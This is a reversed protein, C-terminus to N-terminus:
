ALARRVRALLTPATVPKEILDIDDLDMSEELFPEAFGSMYLIRLSPRLASLREALQNGLMEPMVVDTLLLDIPEPQSTSAALADAGSTAAIVRFGAGVLIRHTAARMADEDEVLLITESGTTAVPESLPQLPEPATDTAPILATFSTGLGLESYLWACGGLRAIIGYVSALGLGTGRGVAKTTFFPDFAHALVDPAMGAGTDSVRLRAHRGPTLGPRQSAYAADVEVNATDIILAGGQPMADRGNLALNVLVQDLQARDARIPYLDEVLSTKLHVHPGVTRELLDAMSRIAENLDIAVPKAAEMRSFTLLQRTLRAARQAAIEIQAVDERMSTWRQEGTTTELTRLEGAVFAAYNIIVGLSNNFDHAIGGALQGVSDLRESRELQVQLRVHDLREDEREAAEVVGATVDRDIALIGAWHGSDDYRAVWRSEVILEEADKTCHVVTGAWHGTDKVADEIEVLPIPFRTRLLESARTGLAEDRGFGYTTEASRNWLM